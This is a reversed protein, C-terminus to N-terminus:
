PPSEPNWSRCPLTKISNPPYVFASLATTVGLKEATKEAAETFVDFLVVEEIGKMDAYNRAHNQGMVGTGIVGVKM